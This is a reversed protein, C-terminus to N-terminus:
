AAVGRGKSWDWPRTQAAVPTHVIKPRVYDAGAERAEAPILHEAWGAALLDWRYQAEDHLYEAEASVPDPGSVQARTLNSWAEQSAADAALFSEVAAALKPDALASASSRMVQAPTSVPRATTEVVATM